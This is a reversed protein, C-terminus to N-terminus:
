WTLRNLLSFFTKRKSLKGEKCMSTCIFYGKRGPATLGKFHTEKLVSVGGDEYPLQPFSPHGHHGACRCSEETAQYGTRLGPGRLLLWSSPRGRKRERALKKERQGKQRRDVRIRSSSSTKLVSLIGQKKSRKLKQFVGDLERSHVSITIYHPLKRNWNFILVEDRDPM